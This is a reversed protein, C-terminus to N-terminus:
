VQEPASPALRKLLWDALEEQSATYDPLESLMRLARDRVEAAKIIHWLAIAVARRHSPARDEIGLENELVSLYGAVQVETADAEAMGRINRAYGDLQEAAAGPELHLYSSLVRRVVVEPPEGRDVWNSAKTNIM